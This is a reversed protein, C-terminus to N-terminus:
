AACSWQAQTERQKRAESGDLIRPEQGKWGKPAALQSPIALLLSISAAVGM